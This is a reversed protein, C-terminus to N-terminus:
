CGRLAMKNKALRVAGWWWLICVERELLYSLFIIAIHLQYQLFYSFHPTLLKTQPPVIKLVIDATCESFKSLIFVKKINSKSTIIILNLCM